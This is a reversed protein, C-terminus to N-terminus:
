RNQHAAESPGAAAAVPVPGFGAGICSLGAAAAWGRLDGTPIDAQVQALAPAVPIGVALRAHLRRMVATTADDPLPAISGVVQRTGLNLFATAFGLPEAEAVLVHGAGECSAMLVTDPCGGCGNLEYLLVPGDALRVSSFLPNDSRLQGHAALHLLGAAGLRDRVATVTAHKGTIARVGYLEAVDAAEGAAGPLGPGAVVVAPGPRPPRRATALWCAASPAITVASGRRAGLMGWPLGALSGTPVVVLPTAPALVRIPDLLLASAETMTRDLLAAAAGLGADSTNARALRRLAFPIRGALDHLQARHALRVLRSRGQALVVVYLDVGFEVYELLVAPGLAARLSTEDAIAIGTATVPGPALRMRDRAQGELQALLRLQGSIQRGAARGEDLDAVVGRIRALLRLLHEDEAPVVPHRTLHRARAREAWTLVRWGSGSDIAARLGVQALETGLRTAQARIDSAAITARYDEIVRLGAAAARAAGGPRALAERAVALALWGRLRREAPGSSRLAAVRTLLTLASERGGRAAATTLLRRAAMIRADAAALDWHHAELRDALAALRRAMGSRDPHLGAETALVTFEAHVAWTPRGQRLFERRAAGAQEHAAALDVPAVARALLLRAEAAYLPRGMKEHEAVAERAAARAEDGLHVSLMLEAREFLLAGPSMGATRFYGEALELHRLAAPVDGIRRYLRVLNENVVGQSRALGAATAIGDAETLDRAAASFALRNEHILARNMLLRQTWVDDREGRLVPLAERYDELAGDLQGAHQRIAGRQCQARARPLGASRAICEGVVRLAQATRGQQVLVGALSMRAEVRLHEAKARGAYAVALRLHEVASPLGQSHAAALGLAREAASAAALDHGALARELVDSAAVSAARVDSDVLAIAARADGLLPSVPTDLGNGARRPVTQNASQARGQRCGARPGRTPSFAQPAVNTFIPPLLM